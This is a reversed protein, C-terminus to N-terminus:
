MLKRINAPNQLYHQLKMLKFQQKFSKMNIVKSGRWEAESGSIRWDVELKTLQIM